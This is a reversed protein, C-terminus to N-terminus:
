EWRFIRKESICNTDFKASFEGTHGFSATPLLLWEKDRKANAIALDLGKGSKYKLNILCAVVDILLLSYLPMFEKNTPIFQASYVGTEVEKISNKILRTTDLTFVAFNWQEKYDYVEQYSKSGCGYKLATQEDSSFSLFHSKDWSLGVHKTVLTGMPSSFIERGYGGNCLNTLLLESNILEKVKRSLKPDSDGRFLHQPINAM